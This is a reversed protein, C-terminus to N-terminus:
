ASSRILDAYLAATQVAIRDWTFLSYLAQAGSMLRQRLSEDATVIQLAAALADADGPPVLFLNEAHRVEPIPVAPATTIIACGHALAAILSGRRFSVGDLFPLACCDAALLTASVEAPSLYGTWTVRGALGLRDVLAEIEAAYAANTPDSSGTRDGVIALRFPTEPTHAAALARLLVDVGKSRNLFGFYAVLREGPAAGLRVRWAARDFGEPTGPAINSGIPIHVLQRAGGARRLRQEDEPNTVIAADSDRVLRLVWWERLPGAKPFLYPVRLDHFTTVFPVAGTLRPLWHILPAMQYAATQYQLNVVDLRNVAIWRQVAGLSARNWGHVTASVRVGPDGNGAGRRDTLVFVAHDLDAFAQAIERTFDAVGGQMPPYEGTILGIRM